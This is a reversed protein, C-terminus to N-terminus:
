DAMMWEAPLVGTSISNVRGIVGEKRFEYKKHRM